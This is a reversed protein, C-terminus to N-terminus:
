TCATLNRVCVAEPSCCGCHVGYPLATPLDDAIVVLHTCGMNREPCIVPLSLRSRSGDVIRACEGGKKHAM